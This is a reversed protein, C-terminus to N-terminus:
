GETTIGAGHELCPAKGAINGATVRDEKNGWGMVPTVKRIEKDASYDESKGRDETVKREIGMKQNQRM